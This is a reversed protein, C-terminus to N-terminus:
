GEYRRHFDIYIIIGFGFHHKRVLFWKGVKDNSWSKRENFSENCISIYVMVVILLFLTDLFFLGIILLLVFTRLLVIHIISVCHVHTQM